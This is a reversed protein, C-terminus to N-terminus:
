KLNILKARMARHQAEGLMARRQAESYPVRKGSLFIETATKPGFVQSCSPARYRTPPPVLLARPHEWVGRGLRRVSRSTKAM